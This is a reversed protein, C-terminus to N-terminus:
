ATTLALRAAPAESVKSTYQLVGASAVPTGKSSATISALQSAYTTGDTVNPADARVTRACRALRMATARVCVSLVRTSKGTHARLRGTV